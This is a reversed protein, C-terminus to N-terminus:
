QQLGEIVAAHILRQDTDADARLLLRLQIELGAEQKLLDHVERGVQQGLDRLNGCQNIYRGVIVESLM